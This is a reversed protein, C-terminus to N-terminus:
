QHDRRGPHLDHRGRGPQLRNPTSRVPERRSRRSDSRKGLFRQGSATETRAMGDTAPGIASSGKQRIPEQRHITQWSSRLRSQRRIMKLEQGPSHHFNSLSYAPLGYIPVPETASQSKRSNRVRPRFVVIWGSESIIEAGGSAVWGFFPPLTGLCWGDRDSAPEAAMPKRTTSLRITPWWYPAVVLAQVCSTWACSLMKGPAGTPGLGSTSTVSGIPMLLRITSCRKLDYLRGVPDCFDNTERHLVACSRKLVYTRDPYDWIAMEHILVGSLRPPLLNIFLGRRWRTWGTAPAVPTKM